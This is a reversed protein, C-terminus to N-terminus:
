VNSRLAMAPVMRSAFTAPYIAAIISLLTGAILSIGAYLGLDAYNMAGFVAGFGFTVGYTIMPFVAGLIIGILSGVVGILASEIVFLQRIFSSLAGLCKMTGIEKFRETVSMLLANTIGIVTVLLSITMIWYTRFRDQHAKQALAAKDTQDQKGFFYTPTVGTYPRTTPNDISDMVVAQPSLSATLKAATSADCQANGVVLLLQVNKGVQDLTAGQAKIGKLNYAKVSKPKSAVIRTLMAREAPTMVGFQAIGVTKGEVGGVEAKITTVMMATSRRIAQERSIARTILDGTLVSMLFAIGLVVGSLTVLARGLRIRIGQLSIQFAINLPLRVQSGIQEM